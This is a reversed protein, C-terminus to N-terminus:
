MKGKEIKHMANQLKNYVREPYAVSSIVLDGAITQILLTGYAFVSGFFGPVDFSISQIKDLGLDVVTKKFIGKQRVQRIRENTVVYYSFHWLMYAYMLGLLGVAIAGMWVWFTWGAALWVFMPITGLAVMALMWYLGRRATLIHRRFLFLVKEGERQGEFDISM